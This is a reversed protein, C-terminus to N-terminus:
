LCIWEKLLSLFQFITGCVLCGISVRQSVHVMLCWQCYTVPAAICSKNYVNCSFASAENSSALLPKILHMNLNQFCEVIIDLVNVTTGICWQVSILWLLMLVHRINHQDGQPWCSQGTLACVGCSGQCHATTDPVMIDAASVILWRLQLTSQKTWCMGCFSLQISIRPLISAFDVGQVQKTGSM